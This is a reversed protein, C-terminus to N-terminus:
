NATTLPLSQLSRVLLGSGLADSAFKLKTCNDDGPLRKGADAAFLLAQRCGEGLAAQEPTVASSWICTKYFGEDATAAASDHFRLQTAQLHRPQFHPQV